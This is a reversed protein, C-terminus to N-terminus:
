LIFLGPTMVYHSISLMDNLFINSLVFMVSVLYLDILHDSPVVSQCIADIISLNLHLSFM